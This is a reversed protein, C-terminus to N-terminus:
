RGDHTLLVITDLSALVALEAKEQRAPDLTSSDFLKVAVASKSGVGGM